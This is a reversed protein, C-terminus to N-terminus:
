WLDRKTGVGEDDEGVRHRQVVKCAKGKEGGSRGNLTLVRERDRGEEYGV